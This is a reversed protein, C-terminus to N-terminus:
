RKAEIAWRDRIARSAGALRSDELGSKSAGTEIRVGSWLQECTTPAELTVQDGLDSTLSM